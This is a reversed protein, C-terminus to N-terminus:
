ERRKRKIPRSFPGGEGSENLISSAQYDRRTGKEDSPQDGPRPKSIGEGRKRQIRERTNKTKTKNPSPGKM